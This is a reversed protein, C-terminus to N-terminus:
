KSLSPIHHGQPSVSDGAPGAPTVRHWWEAGWPEIGTKQLCFLLSPHPADNGFQRWCPHAHPAQPSKHDQRTQLFTRPTWFLRPPILTPRLVPLPHSHPPLEPPFPNTQFGGGTCSPRPSLFVLFVDRLRSNRQLSQLPTASPRPPHCQPSTPPVPVPAQQGWRQHRPLATLLRLSVRAPKGKGSSTMSASSSLFASSFDGRSPLHSQQPCKKRRRRPLPEGAAVAVGEERAPLISGCAGPVFGAASGRRGPSRRAAPPQPATIPCGVGGQSPSTGEPDTGVGQRPHSATHAPPLPQWSSPSSLVRQGLSPLAGFPNSGPVSGGTLRLCYSM